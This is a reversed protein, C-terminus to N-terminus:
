TAVPQLGALWSLWGVKNWYEQVFDAEVLEIGLVRCVAKAAKLDAEVSCNQNGAAAAALQCDTHRL